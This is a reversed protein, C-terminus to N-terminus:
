ISYQEFHQTPDSTLRYYLTRLDAMKVVQVLKGTNIEWKYIEEETTFAYFHQDIVRYLVIEYVDKSGSNPYRLSRGRLDPMGAFSIINTHVIPMQMLNDYDRMYMFRKRSKDFYLRRNAGVHAQLLEVSFNTPNEKIMQELAYVYVGGPCEELPVGDILKSHGKCLCYLFMDINHAAVINMPYSSFAEYMGQMKYKIDFAFKKAHIIKGNAVFIFSTEMRDFEQLALETALQIALEKEQKDKSQEEMYISKRKFASIWKRYAQIEEPSRIQHAYVCDKFTPM